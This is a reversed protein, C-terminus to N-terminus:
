LSIIGTGLEIVSGTVHIGARQDVRLGLRSPRGIYKGQFVQRALPLPAKSTVFWGGLNACASGTAPDEIVADGKRFFFRAQVDDNGDAAWVYVLYRDESVKGWRELLSVVPKCRDIAAPSGLPVILQEIGTDIWAAQEGVDREELGLMQALQARSADVARRKPANPQLTWEDGAASVPIVGAKMELTVRDGCKHLARVVHATGLTPHGAFPMEFAPTFIRVRATARDSPLVFTTESLNFQLALAQMQGDSLGSGDEFVCLPNGSLRDGNIAFVNLIRYRYDSM